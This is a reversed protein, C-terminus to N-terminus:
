SGEWIFHSFQASQPVERQVAKSQLEVEFEDTVLGFVYDPRHSQIQKTNHFILPKNDNICTLIVYHLEKVTKRGM